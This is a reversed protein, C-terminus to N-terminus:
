LIANGLTGTKKEWMLGTQNDTITGDGNDVFRPQPQVFDACVWQTGDFLPFQDATCHLDTRKKAKDRATAEHPYGIVGCMLALLGVWAVFRSQIKKM